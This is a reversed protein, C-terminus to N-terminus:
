FLSSQLIYLIGWIGSMVVLAIIGVLITNKGDDIKNADGAHIIWADIVRWVIVLFTLAFIVPIVLTIIGIFTGVLDSFDQM